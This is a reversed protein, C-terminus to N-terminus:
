SKGPQMTGLVGKNSRVYATKRWSPPLQRRCLNWTSSSWMTAAQQKIDLAYKKM